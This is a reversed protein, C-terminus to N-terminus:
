RSFLIWNGKEARHMEDLTTEGSRLPSVTSTRLSALLGTPLVQFSTLSLAARPAQRIIHLSTPLPGPIQGFPPYQREM